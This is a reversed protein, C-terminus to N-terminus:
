LILIKPVVIPTVIPCDVVERIVVLGNVVACIVVLRKVVACIVVLGRVVACIVVLGRVVACIVVLGRVVACTVVIEEGVVWNLVPFDVVACIFWCSKDVPIKKLVVPKLELRYIECLLEFLLNNDKKGNKM